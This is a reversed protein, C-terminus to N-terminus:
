MAATEAEDDEPRMLIDAFLEMPIGLLMMLRLGLLLGCPRCKEVKQIWRDSCHALEALRIQTYGSAKRRCRVENAFRKQFLTEEKRKATNVKQDEADKKGPKTTLM